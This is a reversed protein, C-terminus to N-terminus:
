RVRSWVVLYPAAKGEFVIKNQPRVPKTTPAIWRYRAFSQPFLRAAQTRSLLPLDAALPHFSAPGVRKWVDISEDRDIITIGRTIGNSMQELPFFDKTAEFSYLSSDLNAWFDAFLKEPSIQAVKALNAYGIDPSTVLERLFKQTDKDPWDLKGGVRNLAYYVLALNAGRTRSNGDPAKYNLELSFSGESQNNLFDLLRGYVRQDGPSLEEVLHSIGEDLGLFERDRRYKIVSALDYREKEPIPRLVKYEYNMLHQFEHASTACIRGPGDRDPAKLLEPSLYLIPKGQNSDALNKGENKLYRDLRNFRGIVNAEDTFSGVLLNVAEDGNASKPFGLVEVLAPIAGSLCNMASKLFDPNKVSEPDFYLNFIGPISDLQYFAKQLAGIGPSASRRIAFRATEGDNHTEIETEPHIYFSEFDRSHTAIANESISNSETTAQTESLIGNENTFPRGRLESLVKSKLEIESNAPRDSSDATIRLSRPSYDVDAKVDELSQVTLIYEEGAKAELLPIEFRSETVV